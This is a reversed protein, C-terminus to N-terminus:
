GILLVVCSCFRVNQATESDRPKSTLAHGIACRVVSVEIRGLVTLDQSLLLSTNSCPITIELEALTTDSVNQKLAFRVSSKHTALSSDCDVM